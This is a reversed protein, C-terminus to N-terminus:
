KLILHATNKKGNEDSFDLPLAVRINIIAKKKM